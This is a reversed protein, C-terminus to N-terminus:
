CPRYCEDLIPYIMAVGHPITVAVFGSLLSSVIITM